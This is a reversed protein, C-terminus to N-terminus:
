KERPSAKSPSAIGAPSSCLVRSTTGSRNSSEEFGKTMELLAARGRGLGFKPFYITVDEHFLDMLRPDGADGLRFYERAIAIKREDSLSM